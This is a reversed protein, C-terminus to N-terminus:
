QNSMEALQAKLFASLKLAGDIGRTVDGQEVGKEDIEGHILDNRIGRLKDVAQIANSVYRMSKTSLTLPLVINLLNNFTFEDRLKKLKSKSFGKKALITLGYSRLLSESIISAEIIAVRTQGRSAKSRIRYLELLEDCPIDQNDAAAQIRVWRQPTILQQASYLPNRRKDRTLTPYFGIFESDNFSWEVADGLFRDKSGYFESMGLMHYSSLNKVNGASMLLAELQEYSKLYIRYIENAAEIAKGRRSILGEIINMPAPQFCIEIHGMVILDIGNWLDDRERVFFSIKARDVTLVLPRKYDAKTWKWLGCAPFDIKRRIILKGM